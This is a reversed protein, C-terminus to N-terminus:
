NNNLLKDYIRVFNNKENNWNFKERAVICNEKCRKHLEKDELLKNTARAIEEPKHSDVCIGIEEGEVVRKIEPFDCAVVPVQGMIYEFLKNSLASYHNFCVNNLVQFGLYANATYYKLEQVPVKDLFRVKEEIGIEKVMNIITPKLKGSGIFVTVGRNFQPIAEVIKELGRGQQIGGQYLLIPEDKPINLINYMDYKNEISDNGTYFPYNHIVEPKKIKYLDRVYNARTNTTMIMVDSKNILMKEVLAQGKGYGTRSSQVEHSDYVLKRRRLLKACIYGQPLVNLDNSHYIDADCNIGKIIMNIVIHLGILAQRSYKFYISIIYMLISIGIIPLYYFGIGYIIILILALLKHRKLVSLIKKSYILYSPYRKIRKIKFGKLVEERKSEPNSPNHIAILTVDYNNETLATCERLVRADNEFHNWVFMCVKKNM